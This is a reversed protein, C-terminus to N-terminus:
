FDSSTLGEQTVTYTKTGGRKIRLAFTNATPLALEMIELSKDCALAYSGTLQSKPAYKGREERYAAQQREINSACNMAATDDARARIALLNPVVAAALIASLFLSLLVQGAIPVVPAMGAEAPWGRASLRRYMVNYHILAGAWMLPLALLPLLNGLQAATLIAAVGVMGAILGWGLHCVPRGLYGFGSGPLVANLLWGVWYRPPTDQTRTSSPLVTM